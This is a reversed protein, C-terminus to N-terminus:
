YPLVNRKAATLMLSLEGIPIVQASGHDVFADFSTSDLDMTFTTPSTVTIPGFFQNAQWMGNEPSIFLRVITGSIYQHDFTTTITIPNSNTITQILRLAPQYMPFPIAIYAPM